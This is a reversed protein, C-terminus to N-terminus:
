PFIIRKAQAMADIALGEVRQRREDLLAVLPGDLNEDLYRVLDSESVNAAVVFRLGRDEVVYTNVAVLTGDASQEVIWGTWTGMDARGSPFQQVYREFEERTM